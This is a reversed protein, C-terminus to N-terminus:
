FNMIDNILVFAMFALLLAVGARQVVLKIKMPIERRFIAEYTLFFLHGGDLAPFPLINLIALSISLLGIVGAFTAIGREASQTAVQAIKIPGGVNKTFSIKGTMMYWIQRISVATINVMDGLGRSFAETLTFDVRTAPGTYRSELGIGILGDGTPVVNGTLTESGRRWTIAISKGANSKVLDVVKQNFAIPTNNISLLIDGPQLGLTAAPMSKQVTNIVVENFASAIGFTADGSELDATRPLALDIERGDRLVRFLLDQGTHDVYILNFIMSWHLVQDGNVSLIRDGVHLGAREAASGIAVYGIETTNRVEQGQSYNIGWFIATALLINMLVGASIVLMRQWMPKARFEWPEPANEIFETDFTEDIMGSIKVYGGVPFAAVRYDTHNGLQISEDLKWFTFGNIRNYGFVRNGMGLAFVEARMGCLKAAIFHGFEHVFVLIGLTIIFYFLTDLLQM